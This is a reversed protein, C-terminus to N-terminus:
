PVQILRGGYALEYQPVNDDLVKQIGCLKAVEYKEKTSEVTLELNEFIYTDCLTRFSMPRGVHVIVMNETPRGGFDNQFWLAYLRYKPRLHEPPLISM